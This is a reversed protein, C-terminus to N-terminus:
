RIEPRQADSQRQCSIGNENRAYCEPDSRSRARGLRGECRDQSKGRGQYDGNQPAVPTKVPPPEPAVLTANVNKPATTCGAAFIAVFM